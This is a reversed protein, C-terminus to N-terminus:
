QIRLGKKEVKGVRAIGPRGRSPGHRSGCSAHGGNHARREAIGNGVGSATDPPCHVAEGSGSKTLVWSVLALAAIAVTTWLLSPGGACVVAAGLAVGASLAEPRIRLTGAILQAVFHFLTGGALMSVLLALMVLLFTLWAPGLQVSLKFLESRASFAAIVSAWLALWMGIAASVQNRFRGAVFGALVGTIVHVALLSGEFGVWGDGEANIRMQASLSSAAGLLGLALGAALAPVATAFRNGGAASGAV